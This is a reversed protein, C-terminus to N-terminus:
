YKHIAVDTVNSNDPTLKNHQRNIQRGNKKNFIGELLIRGHPQATSFGLVVVTVLIVMNILTILAVLTILTTM